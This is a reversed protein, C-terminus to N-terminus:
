DHHQMTHANDKFWLHLFHNANSNLQKHALDWIWRAANDPHKKVNSALVAYLLFYQQDQLPIVTLKVTVIILLISISILLSSAIKWDARPIPEQVMMYANRCGLNHPWCGTQFGFTLQRPGKQVALLCLMAAPLRGACSSRAAMPIAKTSGRVVDATGGGGLLVKGFSCGGAIDATQEAHGEHWVNSTHKGFHFAKVPYRCSIQSGVQCADLYM